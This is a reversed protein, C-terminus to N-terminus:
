ILFNGKPLELGRDLIQKKVSLYRARCASREAAEQIYMLGEAANCYSLNNAEKVYLDLLEQDTMPKDESIFIVPCYPTDFEEGYLYAAVGEEARWPYVWDVYGRPLLVPTLIQM